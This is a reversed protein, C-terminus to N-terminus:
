SERKPKRILELDNLRNRMAEQSVNFDTALQPILKGYAIDFYDVTQKGDKYEVVKEKVLNAPMLFAAACTNAQWEIWDLDTVLKRKEGIRRITRSSTTHAYDITNHEFYSKHLVQHFVEHMVTFNERGRNDSETLTSDIVITGKSLPVKYPKDGEEYSPKEWAWIYGDGFATLGLISQDPTLYKWDYSVGLCKEIVEYVDLPKPTELREKDFEWLLNEAIRNLQNKSYWPAGAM